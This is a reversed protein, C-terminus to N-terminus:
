APISARSILYLSLVSPNFVAFAPGARLGSKRTVVTGGNRLRMEVPRRYERLSSADNVRALYRGPLLYENWDGTQALSIALLKASPMAM